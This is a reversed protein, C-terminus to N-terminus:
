PLPNQEVVRNMTSYSDVSLLEREGQVLRYTAVEFGAKGQNRVRPAGDTLIRYERPADARRVESVIEVSPPKARGIISIELRDGVIRGEIRVPTPYPNRFRLDVTDFAVAADRGPTVYGPCFRHRHREEIGMGALLAANYLTTSTQCVGGGWSEILTGNYSVPARRYGVDRSFTGVRANFSFTGGPPVVASSLARVSLDANHRQNPTRGVLSTAFKALDHEAPPQLALGAFAVGAAGVGVIAMVRM